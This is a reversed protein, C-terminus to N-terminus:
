LPLPSRRVKGQAVLSQLVLEVTALEPNDDAASEVVVCGDGWLGNTVLNDCYRVVRPDRRFLRFVRERDPGLQWGALVVAVALDDDAPTGAAEAARPHQNVAMAM